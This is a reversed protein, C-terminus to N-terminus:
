YQPPVRLYQPLAACGGPPPHGQINKLHALAPAVTAVASNRASGAPASAAAPSTVSYGSGAPPESGVSMTAPPSPFRQTLSVLPWASARSVGSPTNSSNRRWVSKVAGSRSASACSPLTQNPSWRVWGLRTPLISGNPEIVNEATGVLLAETAPRSAAGLPLRHIVSPMPLIPWSAGPPLGGDIVSPVPGDSSSSTAAPTSPLMHAVCNM